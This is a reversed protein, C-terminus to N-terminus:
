ITMSDRRTDIWSIDLDLYAFASKGFDYFAVKDNTVKRKPSKSHFRIPHRDEFTWYPVGTSDFREFRKREGPWSRNIVDDFDSTNFKQPISWPTPTGIDDYIRVKWWYTSNSHLPKGGYTINISQSSNVKKSNWFDGRNEELLAQSSAVLVQYSKQKGTPVIWGFKPLRNSIYTQEPNSLLDCLLGIPASSYTTLNGVDGHLSFNYSSFVIFFVSVAILWKKNLLFTLHKM